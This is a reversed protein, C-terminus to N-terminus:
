TFYVFSRLELLLKCLSREYSKSIVDCCNFVSLFQTFEFWLYVTQNYSYQQLYRAFSIYSSRFDGIFFKCHASLIEIEKPPNLPFYSHIVKITQSYDNSLLLSLISEEFEPLSTNM